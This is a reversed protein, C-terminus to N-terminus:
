RTTKESHAQVRLACMYAHVYGFKMCQVMRLAELHRPYCTKEAKQGSLQRKDRSKTILESWLQVNRWPWPGASLVWAMSVWVSVSSPHLNSSWSATLDRDKSLLKHFQIFVFLSFVCLCKSFQQKLFEM